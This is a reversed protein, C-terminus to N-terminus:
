AGFFHGIEPFDDKQRHISGGVHRKEFRNEQKEDFERLGAVEDIRKEAFDLRLMEDKRGRDKRLELRQRQRQMRAGDHELEDVVPLLALTRRRGREAGASKPLFFREIPQADLANRALQLRNRDFKPVFDIRQRLQHHGILASRMTKMLDHRHQSDAIHRRLSADDFVDQLDM